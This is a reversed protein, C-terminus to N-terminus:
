WYEDSDNSHAVHRFLLWVREALLFLKVLHVTYVVGVQMVTCCYKWYM